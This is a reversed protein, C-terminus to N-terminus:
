KLQLCVRAWISRDVMPSNKTTQM